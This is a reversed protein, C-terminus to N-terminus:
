QLKYTGEVTSEGSCSLSAAKEIPKILFLVSSHPTTDHCLVITPLM